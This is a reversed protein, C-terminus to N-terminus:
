NILLSQDLESCINTITTGPHTCFYVQLILSCMKGVNSLFLLGVTGLLEFCGLVFVRFFTVALGLMNLNSIVQIFLFIKLAALSFHWTAYLPVLILVVTPIESSVIRALLCHLMMKLPDSFFYDSPNSGRQTLVWFLYGSCLWPVM